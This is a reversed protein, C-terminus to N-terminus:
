QSTDEVYRPSLPRCRCHSLLAMTLLRSIFESPLRKITSVEPSSNAQVLHPSNNQRPANASSNLQSQSTMTPPLMPGVAPLAQTVAPSSSPANREADTENQRSEEYLEFWKRAVDFLVEPSVSSDKAASEM